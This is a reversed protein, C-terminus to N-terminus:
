SLKEPRTSALPIISSLLVSRASHECFGSAEILRCLSTENVFVIDANRAVVAGHKSLGDIIVDLSAICVGHDRKQPHVSSYLQNAAHRSLPFMNSERLISVDNHGFVSSIIRDLEKTMLM